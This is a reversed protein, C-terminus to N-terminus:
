GGEVVRYPGLAKKLRRFCGIPILIPFMESEGKNDFGDMDKAWNLLIIASTILEVVDLRDEDSLPVLGSGSCSSCDHKNPNWYTFPVYGEGNCTPCVKKIKGLQEAISAFIPSSKFYEAAEGDKREVVLRDPMKIGFPDGDARLITLGNDCKEVEEEQEALDTLLPSPNAPPQVRAWEEELLALIADRTEFVSKDKIKALTLINAIEERKDM